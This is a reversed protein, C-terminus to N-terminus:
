KKFQPTDPFCIFLAPWSLSLDWFWVADETVIQDGVFCSKLSEKFENLFLNGSAKQTHRYGVKGKIKKLLSEESFACVSEKSLYQKKDVPIKYVFQDM